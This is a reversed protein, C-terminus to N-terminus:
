AFVQYNEELGETNVSAEILELSKPVKGRESPKYDM